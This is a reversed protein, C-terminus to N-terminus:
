WVPTVEPTVPTEVLLTVEPTVEPTAPTVVLPIVLPNAPRIVVPVIEAVVEVVKAPPALKRSSSSSNPLKTMRILSVGRGAEPTRNRVPGQPPPM